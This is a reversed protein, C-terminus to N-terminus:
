FADSNDIGKQDHDATGPPCLGQDSAKALLQEGYGGPTVLQHPVAASNIAPVRDTVVLPLLPGGAPCCGRIRAPLRDDRAQLNDYM